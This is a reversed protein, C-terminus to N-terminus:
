LKGVRIDKVFIRVGEIDAFNMTRVSAMELGATEIEDFGESNGGSEDGESMDFEAAKGKGKGKADKAVQRPKEVSNAKRILKYVQGQMALYKIKLTPCHTINDVTFRRCERAISTCHDDTRISLIHLAILSKLGAM